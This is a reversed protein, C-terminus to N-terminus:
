ERRSVAGARGAATAASWRPISRFLPSDVVSFFGCIVANLYTHRQGQAYRQVRAFASAVACLLQRIARSDALNLTLAYKAFSIVVHFLFAFAIALASVQVFAWLAAAVHPMQGDSYGGALLLWTAAFGCVISTQWFLNWGFARCQNRVSVFDRSIDQVANM